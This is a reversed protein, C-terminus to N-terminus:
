KLAAEIAAEFNAYPQAGAIMQKGIVLSPTASIGFAQAESRDAAIVAQYASKNATVAAIVKAGDIGAVTKTLKQVSAEDGFGGNEADQAVFMAEHWAAYQTPYLEWVARSYLAATDSDPGLFQFDKFVIKAKGTKVYKEMIQPLAEQDFKKCFPCQYDSWYAIVVPASANGVFPAGEIKVDKIDVTAQGGGQPPQASGAPRSNNWMVAGAILLGALVVSAPVLYQNIGTNENM